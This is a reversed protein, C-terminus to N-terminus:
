EITRMKGHLFQPPSWSTKRSLDCLLYLALGQSQLLPRDTWLEGLCQSMRRAARPCKERKQPFVFALQASFNQLLSSLPLASRTCRAFGLGAGVATLRGGALAGYDVAVWEARRPKEVRSLSGAQVRESCESCSEPWKSLAPRPNKNIQLEPM